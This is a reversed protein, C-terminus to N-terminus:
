VRARELLNNIYPTNAREQAGDQAVSVPNSVSMGGGSPMPQGEMQPMLGVTAPNIGSAMLLQSAQMIQMNLNNVQNLLTQGQTVYEVVKEKGEFDMIELCILAQQALEPNFFGANYLNMATENQALTTFPSQKQARVDIDIIPLRVAYEQEGFENDGLVVPVEEGNVNTTVNKMRLGANNYNIYEYGTGNANRIRFSREETYFQRILEIIIRVMEVYANQSQKIMDRSSKNGAEQLTAIAAGSTVGASTSGNSFDRNNTTEKLEDIKMEKLNLLASPMNPLVIDRFKEQSVDNTGQVHVISKNWDLWEDENIGSNEGALWRPSSSKVSHELAVKDLLDIYVQPDKAIAIIGFGVPTSEEPFLVDFVFPYKGHDYFGNVAYNTDNESAYLVTDGVFKCFHVVTKGNVKKKYYWDIVMTKDELNSEDHSYKVYNIEEGGLKGQLQPYQSELIENDVLDVSFFHPSKQIDTIGPAWFLNLIDPRGIDINGLGNDLEPNWLVSYASIGHKLKYWSEDSYTSYFDNQEIIVPLISTLRNAEEEDSQERALCIPEPYNDMFDAHKNQISNFLWGSMPTEEDPKYTGLKKKADKYYTRMYFNEEEVIRAELTAKGSKYKELISTAEKVEEKGIVVSSRNLMMGNVEGIEKNNNLAGAEAQRYIEGDTLTQSPADETAGIEFLRKKAM